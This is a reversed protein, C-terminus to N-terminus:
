PRKASSFIYRATAAQLMYMAAAARLMELGHVVMHLGNIVHEGLGFKVALVAADACAREIQNGQAYKSRLLAEGGGQVELRESDRQSPLYSILFKCDARVSQRHATM